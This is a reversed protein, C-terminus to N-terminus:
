TTLVFVYQFCYKLLVTPVTSSIQKSTKFDKLRAFYPTIMSATFVSLVTTRKITVTIQMVMTITTTTMMKLTLM